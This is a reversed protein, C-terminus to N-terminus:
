TPRAGSPSSRVHRAGMAAAARGIGLPPKQAKFGGFSDPVEAPLAIGGNKLIDQYQEEITDRLWDFGRTRMVFKLRATNKNKRNGHENFVRIVAEIRHLLDDAPIFEHLM